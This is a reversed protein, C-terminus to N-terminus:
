RNIPTSGNKSQLVILGMNAVSISGSPTIPAATDFDLIDEPSPASTDIIKRWHWANPPNHVPPVVFHATETQDGNIMVMFDCDCNGIVGTHHLTFSLTRCEPSWDQIGPQLSQWSIDPRLRPDATDPKFFGTRRFLPYTKRLEICKTFFRLLDKNKRSLSWDIWNIENDQCWSNNNGQQTRAFEDGATIMPIGQSLFLLAAFTRIRRFRLREIEKSGTVGEAGSNWSLNHNEGDRNQEGNDYNKKEEYSVLDYLTFGDHSTLFNISNLPGRGGPQYLDSSGAIRTALTRVSDDHSAMFKRVDDRFRGNWELWRPNDSFSGVQYLGSADWAEAIIKVDKLLPDEAIQKILPAEDLVQGQEDRSFIAALDFRFGDVHMETTWYRLSQLILEMGPKNNCSFTNGCGSYNHYAGDKTNVMYYGTNDLGRYCTTQGNYDSEGTHNYVVDLIVELGAQHLERVLEKFEHDPPMSGSGYGTKLCFFSIPNYGWYNVLMEGSSPNSYRCDREDWETVPLLEVATIGLAKLYPIKDIIGRYTGPHSVNSSAHHTFGRVHLEYIVTDALPTRPPQDDQWDFLTEGGVLCVPSAGIHREERWRSPVLRRCYPDILIKEPYFREGRDRDSMGNVRFGYRIEPTIDHVMIHWIDGTRNKGGDLPIEMSDSFTDGSPIEIVLRVDTAHPCFLAFNISQEGRTSGLPFPKGISTKIQNDKSM